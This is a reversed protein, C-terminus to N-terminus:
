LNFIKSEKIENLIKANSNIYPKFIIYLNYLLFVVVVVFVFYSFNSIRYCVDFWCLNSALWSLIYAFLAVTLHISYEDMFTKKNENMQLYDRRLDDIRLLLRNKSNLKDNDSGIKASTKFNNLALLTGESHINNIGNPLYPSNFMKDDMFQKYIDYSETIITKHTADITANLITKPEPMNDVKQFVLIYNEIFETLEGLKIIRGYIKKPQISCFIKDLYMEIQKVFGSRIKNIEGNYNHETVDFGPHPLMSCSINEYCQNIQQRTKVLNEGKGNASMIQKKYKEQEQYTKEKDNVDSFNQWDRILMDMQQFPKSNKNEEDDFAIRAYESFLALHELNDEQIRKELNYIQYSSLLTSLGFLSTTVKQNLDCDFIGQTDFIMIAMEKGSKNKFVFPKFWMWIGTTEKKSGRSWKFGSIIKEKDIKYGPKWETNKNLYDVVFNLIFSKGTRYAGNVILIAVEMDKYDAIIEQFLNKDFEFENNEFKIIKVATM